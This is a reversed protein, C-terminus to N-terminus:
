KLVTGGILEQLKQFENTPNIEYGLREMVREKTPVDNFIFKYKRVKKKNDEVWVKVVWGFVFTNNRVDIKTIKLKKNM